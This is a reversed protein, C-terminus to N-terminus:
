SYLVCLAARQLESLIKLKDAMAGVVRVDFHCSGTHGVMTGYFRCAAM